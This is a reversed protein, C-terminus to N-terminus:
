IEPFGHLLVVLPRDPREFGAELMHIDLGNVDRVIRARIGSPLVSADLPTMTQSVSPRPVSAASAVCDAPSPMGATKAPECPENEGRAGRKALVVFGIRRGRTGTDPRSVPTIIM